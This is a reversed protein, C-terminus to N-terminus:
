IRFFSEFINLWKELKLHQQGVKPGIGLSIGMYVRAQRQPRVNVTGILTTYSLKDDRMRHRSCANNWTGSTGEQLEIVSDHRRHVKLCKYQTVSCLFLTEIFSRGLVISLLNPSVLGCHNECGDQGNARAIRRRSFGCGGPVQHLFNTSCGTWHFECYIKPKPSWKFENMSAWDFICHGDAIIIINFLLFFQTKM